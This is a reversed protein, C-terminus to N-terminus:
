KPTRPRRTVRKAGLKMCSLEKPVNKGSLSLFKIDVLISGEVEPILVHSSGVSGRVVVGFIITEM